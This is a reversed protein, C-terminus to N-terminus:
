ESQLEKVKEMAKDRRAKFISILKPDGALYIVSQCIEIEQILLDVKIKQLLELNQMELSKIYDKSM